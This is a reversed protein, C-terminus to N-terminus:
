VGGYVRKRRETLPKWNREHWASLGREIWDLFPATKGADTYDWTSRIMVLRAASWDLGPDNWVAWRASLGRDAILQALRKPLFASLATQLTPLGSAAEIALTAAM